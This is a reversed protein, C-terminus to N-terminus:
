NTECDRCPTLAVHPESARPSVADADALTLQEIKTRLDQNREYVKKYDSELKHLEREKQAEIAGKFSWFYYSTGIKDKNVLDDDVLAQVM